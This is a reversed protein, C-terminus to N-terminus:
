TCLHTLIPPTGQYLFRRKVGMPQSLSRGGSATQSPTLIMRPHNPGQGSNCRVVRPTDGGLAKERGVAVEAGEWNVDKSPQGRAILTPNPNARAHTTSSKPPPERECCVPYFRASRAIRPVVLQPM